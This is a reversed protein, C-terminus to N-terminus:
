RIMERTSKRVLTPRTVRCICPIRCSEIVGRCLKWQGAFMSLKWALRTMHVAVVLEDIRAAILTVTRSEVLRRIRIVHCTMEAACALRAM